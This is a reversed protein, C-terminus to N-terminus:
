SSFHLVNSLNLLLFIYKFFKKRLLRTDSMAERGSFFPMAWASCGDLIVLTPKCCKVWWRKSKQFCLVIEVTHWLLAIQLTRLSHHQESLCSRVVKQRTHLLWNQSWRVQMVSWVLQCSLQSYYCSIFTCYIAHIPFHKNVYWCGVPRLQESIVLLSMSLQFVHELFNTENVHTIWALLTCRRWRSWRGPEDAHSFRVDRFVKQRTLRFKTVPEDAPVVIWRGLGGCPPKESIWSSSSKMAQCELRPKTVSAVTHLHPPLM